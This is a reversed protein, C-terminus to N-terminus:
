LSQGTAYADSDLGALQSWGGDTRQQRILEQALKKLAGSKEGAWALGLLQHVREENTEARANALWQRARKVGSDLEQRRAPIGFSKITHVAQATATIESAQIPPRPLNWSWHGDALQLTALPHVMADTVSSAPEHEMGFAQSAYGAFIAPEPHFTTQLDVELITHLEDGQKIHAALFDKELLEIQHLVADRDTTFKRSHALSMAMLPLQQQHCAVCNQKSAHRLYTSVSEEAAAM